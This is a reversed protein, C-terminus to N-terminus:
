VGPHNFFCTEIINPERRWGAACGGVITVQWGLPIRQLIAVSVSIFELQRQRRQLRRQRQAVDDDVMTTSVRCTAGVENVRREAVHLLVFGSDNIVVVTVAAFPAGLLTVAISAETFAVGGPTIQVMRIRSHPSLNHFEEAPQLVLDTEGAPAVVLNAAV